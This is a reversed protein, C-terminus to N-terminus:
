DNKERNHKIATNVAKGIIFALLFAGMAFTPFEMWLPIDVDVEYIIYAMAYLWAFAIVIWAITQKM